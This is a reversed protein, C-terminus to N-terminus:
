FPVDLQGNTTNTEDHNSVHYGFTYHSHPESGYPVLPDTDASAIPAFLVAGGIALAAAAPAIFRKPSKMTDEQKSLQGTGPYREMTEGARAIAM